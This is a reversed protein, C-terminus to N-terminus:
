KEAIVPDLMSRLQKESLGGLFRAAIKGERDLVVTSPIAQPNLTGKPFGSIILKGAPDYISPYSVKYDKEFEIAPGKDRDRVNLGVFEVGKAKTDAAVKVLAPAEARCPPCWSGWVNIVVIKGKLDAVDLAEGELTKGAIKGVPKRDGKAVTSIGSNSSVFNTQGGGGSTGGDTCASLTLAGAAALAATLAARHARSHSM